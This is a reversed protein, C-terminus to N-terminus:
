KSSSHRPSRTRNESRSRGRALVSVREFDGVVSVKPFLAGAEAAIEAPDYRGSIHTLYLAGTEAEAALRGAQAATLHGRQAALATDPELFTAEIVLADAGRVPEILTDIEETDGIVALSAGPSASALVAEPEVPRGNPLMVSKGAALQGRLPGEPVGLAELVESRLHRRPLEDFRFGLSQTGRHRVPFCGIRFGRGELVPGPELAVFRLPVPAQRQPWLSLLYREVFAVTEEGGCIALEGRVDLLGFTAVLGALGLVHDLHAHTLLVHGLRRFGTGARLMQRQTGEGCDILFRQGGAGVLLAPLGREASPTSAATGLFILEFM